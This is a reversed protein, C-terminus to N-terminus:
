IKKKFGFAFDSDWNVQLFELREKAETPTPTHYEDIQWFGFHMTNM